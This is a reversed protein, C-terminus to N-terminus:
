RVLLHCLAITALGVPPYEVGSDFQFWWYFSFTAKSAALSPQVLHGDAYWSCHLFIIGILFTSASDLEFEGPLCFARTWLKGFIRDSADYTLQRDLRSVTQGQLTM